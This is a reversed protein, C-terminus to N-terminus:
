NIDAILSLALEPAQNAQALIASSVQERIQLAVMRATEAAVDIDNIRSAAAVYNERLSALQDNGFSLRSQLSGIVGLGSGLAQEATDLARIAALAGQRTSIDLSNLFSVAYSDGLMVAINSGSSNASIIDLVGDGDLDSLLSESAGTVAISSYGQFSGDGNGLLTSVTGSKTFVLDLKGDSNLDGLALDGAGAPAAFSLASQFTADGNGLRVLIHSGSSDSTILDLKGDNNIDGVALDSANGMSINTAALFTGNGNGLLINVGGVGNSDAVIDLKGDRNIDKLIPLGVGSSGAGYDQKAQLTGDGNGLLVSFYAPLGSKGDTVIDLKGDGNLDAISVQTSQGITAYSRVGQFSGNGNGLMVGVASAAVVVVDYNGDNNIDAVELDRVSGLATFSISALLSGDGNGLAVTITGDTQNSTVLDLIGDNNFDGSKIGSPAAGVTHSAASGYTGYGYNGVGLNSFNLQYLSDSSTFGAQIVMTSTQHHLLSLGNLRTSSIIRNYEAQLAQAESNLAARQTSSFSGNASQTALEKLRVLIDSGSRAAGEALNLASLGDNVNRISQAFRRSSSSLTSAIALGAADDSPRNIRQGSSLREFSSGLQDRVQGLGTQARLALINSRYGITTM